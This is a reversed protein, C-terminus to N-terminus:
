QYHCGLPRWFFTTCVGHPKWGRLSIVKEIETDPVVNVTRETYDTYVLDGSKSVAINWPGGRSKPEIEKVLNGQLNYLRIMRDTLNCTWVQETTLCSLTCLETNKPEIDIDTSVYVEAKFSSLSGILQNIHEENNIKQPTFSPLVVTPKRHLRSCFEVNRSKFASVISVDNSILLKKLEEIYQTNESLNHKNEDDHRNLVILNRSNIDEIDSKYEEIVHDIKM